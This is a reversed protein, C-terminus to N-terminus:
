KQFQQTKRRAYRVLCGPLTRVLPLVLRMLFGPIYQKRGRFMAALAVEATRQPTMLIGLNKGLSQLGKSLGYLDTTVGAPLVTTAAVGTGRLEAALSRSYSRIYSKTASYLALGPWPMWASYSSLSLIHGRGRRAMDAAFMRALQSTTLVHLNIIAEIRGPATDIIDNYIFIGANNVLISPEINRAACWDHLKGASEPRALDIEVYRSKVGFREEISRDAEKLGPGDIAALVLNYGMGALKEAIALGIGSSGGTVLAWEDSPNNWKAKLRM